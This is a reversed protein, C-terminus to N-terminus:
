KSPPINPHVLQSEIYAQFEARAKQPNHMNRAARGLVPLLFGLVAGLSSLKLHGQGAGLRPENALGQLIQRVSPDGFGLVTQYVRAGLPHRLLDSIKAWLREGAPVLVDNREYPIQSGFLKGAGSLAM